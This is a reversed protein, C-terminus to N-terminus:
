RWRTREMAIRATLTMPGGEAFRASSRRCCDLLAFSVIKRRIVYRCPASHSNHTVTIDVDTCNRWKCLAPIAVVVVRGIRWFARVRAIIVDQCLENKNSLAFKEVDRSSSLSLYGLIELQALSPIIFFSMASIWRGSSIVTPNGLCILGNRRENRRRKRIKPKEM